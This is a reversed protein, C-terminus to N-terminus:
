KSSLQEPNDPVFGAEDEDSFDDENWEDIETLQRTLKVRNEVEQRQKEISAKLEAERRAKFAKREEAELRLRADREVISEGPRAGHKDAYRLGNELKEDDRCILKLDLYPNKNGEHRGLHWPSVSYGSISKKVAAVPYNKLRETLLKRRIPILRYLKFGMVHRWYDFCEQVDKELQAKTKKQPPTLSSLDDEFGPLSGQQPGGQEQDNGGTVGGESNSTNIDKNLKILTSDSKNGKTVKASKGNHKGSSVPDSKKNGNTVLNETQNGNTVLSSTIQNGTTVKEQIQNGNTVLSEDAQNGDTVLENSWRYVSLRRSIVEQSLIESCVLQNVSKKLRGKNPSSGKLNLYIDSFDSSSLEIGDSLGAVLVLAWFLDKAGETLSSIKRLTEVSIQLQVQHKLLSDSYKM